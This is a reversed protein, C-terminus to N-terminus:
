LARVFCEVHSVSSSSRPRAWDIRMLQETMGDQKILVQANTLLLGAATPLDVLEVYLVATSQLAMNAILRSALFNPDDLTCRISIAAGAAYPATDGGPGPGPPADIHLLTANQLSNV